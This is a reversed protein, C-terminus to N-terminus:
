ELAALNSQLRVLLEALQQRDERTTGARLESRLRQDVEAIEAVVDKGEPTIEVLWVRRDDPDPLRRVLGRAELADVMSGTAARGLALREAIRSQAQPGFDAVYSLLSAQSLHLGLAELRADYAERILRATAMLTAEVRLWPPADLEHGGTRDEAM